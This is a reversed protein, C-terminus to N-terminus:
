GCRREMEGKEDLTMADSGIRRLLNIDTFPPAAGAPFLTGWGLLEKHFIGLTRVNNLTKPM